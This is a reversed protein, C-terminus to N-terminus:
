FKRPIHIYSIGYECVDLSELIDSALKLAEGRSSIPKSNRWMERANQIMVDPDETYRSNERCERCEDRGDNGFHIDSGHVSCRGYAVNEIAMLHSVRYEVQITAGSLDNDTIPTVLIYVGNDASM